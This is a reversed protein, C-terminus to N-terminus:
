HFSIVKELRGEANMYCWACMHGELNRPILYHAEAYVTSM